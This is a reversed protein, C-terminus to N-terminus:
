ILKKLTAYVKVNGQEAASSDAISGNKDIIIHRPLYLSRKMVGSRNQVQSLTTHFDDQTAKNLLFHYGTLNHAAIYQKWKNGNNDCCIYLVVIDNKVAFSAFDKVQKTKQLEQRCPSCWTAWADVYIVKGKFKSILANFNVTTDTIYHIGTKTQAQATTLMVLLLITLSLPKLYHTM